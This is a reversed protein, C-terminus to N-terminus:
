GKAEATQKLERAQKKAVLSYHLDNWRAGDFDKGGLFDDSREDWSWFWPFEEKTRHPESGRDKGYPIRPTVRLICGDRRSSERPKATLWPRINLRVGDNIDPEWGIPQEYLPKWRVFIDYPKEGKLIKELQTKLHTAATLRADAGEKGAKVEDSQREIWRGLYTYILKELTKRGEGNPAALKHYNVLAHFGDKRGDWVHWIFPRQHFIRCHEEFFGDRLWEELSNWDGLLEQLKAASWESGYADPFLARLRDAASAEGAVANLPVIGDSDAHRELGDPGLAGCDRFSVGVQRPWRYGVLRAVSVQLPYDSGLPHGKFLWQTPDNTQPQPLGSPYEEAAIRQWHAFDFPIKSVYGNDVSLKPNLKRLEQAFSPSSSFAWLAPLVAVDKPIIVPTSNSFLDGSYL